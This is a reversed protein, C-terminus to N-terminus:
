AVHSMASLSNPVSGFVNLTGRISQRVRVDPGGLGTEGSESCASALGLGAEISFSDRGESASTTSFVDCFGIGFRGLRHDLNTASEHTISSRAPATLKAAMALMM